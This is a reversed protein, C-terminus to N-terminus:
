EIEPVAKKPKKKERIPKPGEIYSPDANAITSLTLLVKVDIDVKIEDIDVNIYNSMDNMKMKFLLFPQDRGKKEMKYDDRRDFLAFM